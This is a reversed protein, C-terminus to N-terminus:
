VEQPLLKYKLVKILQLSVDLFLIKANANREVHYYTKEFEQALAEIQQETIVKSFNAVFDREEENLRILNQCNNKFVLCERLIKLGFLLFNKQNERGIKAFDDVFTIVRLGDNNYCIRLWNSLTDFYQNTDQQAIDIAKQISGESLYAIQTAKTATVGKSELLFKEIETNEVAAIKLLQTRSIITTLVQESDHAVLLFLTKEPPEEILKLLTNGEKSLYEPLWMILIKYESEFPKLSLKKIIRHCELININPQKNEVDNAERWQDIEMYPNALFTERFTKIFTEATDTKTDKAFFPYSFHLDPHVLNQVKRCSACEGCSDDQQKNECMIYQAFAVALALNGCGHPGLFMQAHSIRSEHVQELLRKKVAQQAIIKKFQM